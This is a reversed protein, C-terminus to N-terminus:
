ITNERIHHVIRRIAGHVYQRTMRRGNITRTKAIESYGKGQTFFEVCIERRVRSMKITSMLEYLEYANMAGKLDKNSYKM